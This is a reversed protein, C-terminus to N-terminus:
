DTVVHRKGLHRILDHGEILRIYAVNKQEARASGQMPDISDRRIFPFTRCLYFLGAACFHLPGQYQNQPYRILHPYRHLRQDTFREAM